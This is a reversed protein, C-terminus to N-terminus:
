LCPPYALGFAKLPLCPRGDPLTTGTWADDPADVLIEADPVSADPQAAGDLPMAADLPPAADPPVIAGDSTEMAGPVLGGDDTVATLAPICQSTLPDCTQTPDDCPKGICGATLQIPMRLPRHAVYKFRRRAVICGEYNPGKCDTTPRDIGVVVRVAVEAGAHSPVFYLDGVLGANCGTGNGSPQTREAELSTPAV